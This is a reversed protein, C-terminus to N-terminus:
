NFKRIKLKTGIEDIITFPGPNRRKTQRNNIGIKIFDGSPGVVMIHDKNESSIEYTEGMKWYDIITVPEKSTITIIVTNSDIRETEFGYVEGEGLYRAARRLLEDKLRGSVMSALQKEKQGITKQTDQTTAYREALSLIESKSLANNVGDAVNLCTKAVQGKLGPELSVASSFRTDAERYNGTHLYAEAMLYHAEADTPTDLIRKNLVEIAQPYMQAAMFKKAKRVESGFFAHVPSIIALSITILIISLLLKRNM